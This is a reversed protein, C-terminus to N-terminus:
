NELFILHANFFLIKCLGVYCDADFLSPLTNSKTEHRDVFQCFDSQLTQM